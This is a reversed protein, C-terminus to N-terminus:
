TSPILPPQNNSIASVAADCLRFWTSIGQNKSFHFPSYISRRLQTQHDHTIDLTSVSQHSVDRSCPSLQFVLAFIQASAVLSAFRLPLRHQLFRSVARTPSSSCFFLLLPPLLLLSHFSGILCLRTLYPFFFISVSCLGPMAGLLSGMILGGEISVQDRGARPVLNVPRGASQGTQRSM